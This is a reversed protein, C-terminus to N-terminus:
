IDDNLLKLNEEETVIEFFQKLQNQTLANRWKTNCNLPPVKRLFNQVRMSHPLHAFEEINQITSIPHKVLDEYHIQLFHTKPITRSEYRCLDLYYKWRYIGFGFLNYHKNRFTEYWPKPMHRFWLHKEDWSNFFGQQNMRFYSECVARGDRVLHIFLADPFAKSLYQIRPYDGYTAFFRSKGQSAMCAAIIKRIQKSEIESIDSDTPPYSLTAKVGKKFNSLHREWFNWSEYPIPLISKGLVKTEWAVRYLLSGFSPFDYIRNLTSVVTLNPLLNNYQSLWALDPHIGLINEALTVGSRPSGFIFIPQKM